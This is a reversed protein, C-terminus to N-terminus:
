DKTIDMKVGDLTGDKSTDRNVCKRYLEVYTEIAEPTTLSDLQDMDENSLEFDFVQANEIMREKKVSKPVYIFGKQICWRGLIQAPTKDNAAAISKLVDHDFAKGDRLSRYSQLVVGDEVFKKITNKRYLFPNIEIQNVYPLQTIGTSVDKLELYDEWAYNSVGIGRIKGEQQLQELTQYAQVHKGPVPWHIL